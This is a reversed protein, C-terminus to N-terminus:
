HPYLHTLVVANDPFQYPSPQAYQDSKTPWGAISSTDYQYWDVGETVPIFPIQDVMVKQIQKIIQVQKSQSAASYQDFLADTSSSKYREYNTQGINGSLLLGRLEYYPSPGAITSPGGSGAYALQFKGNQLDTTYPGTNLDQV